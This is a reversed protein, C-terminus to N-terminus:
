LTVPEDDRRRRRFVSPTLLALSALWGKGLPQEAPTGDEDPLAASEEAWIAADWTTMVEDSTEVDVDTTDNDVMAQESPRLISVSASNFTVLSRLKRATNALLKVPVARVLKESSRGSSEAISTLVVDEIPQEQDADSSVITIREPASWTGIQGTTGIARVWYRYDGATLETTSTYDTGTITDDRIIATSVSSVSSVFIEYRVANSAATWSFLPTPDSGAAIPDLVPATVGNISFQSQSNLSWLSVRGDVAFARVWIRYVGASLADAVQYFNTTLGAVDVIPSGISASPALYVQYSVAGLVPTWTLLPTDDHTNGIPIVSTRGGIEIVEGKSWTTVVTGAEVNSGTFVGRTWVKYRGNLLGSLDYQTSSLDNEVLIVEAPVVDVKNLWLQWTVSVDQAAADPHHWNVTVDSDFRPSITDVAPATLIDFDYPVSWDSVEGSGAEAQVWYRYKGVPLDAPPTYSGSQLDAQVFQTEGMSVSTLWIRYKLGALSPQWTLTPRQSETRSFPAAGLGEAPGLLAPATGIQFDQVASWDSATGDTAFSRIRVQYQGPTLAIGGPVTLSTGVVGTQTFVSVDTSVNVVEVESTAGGFVATWSFKPTTDYTDANPSLVEPPTSVTFGSSESFVAVTSGSSSAAPVNNTQIRVDYRGLPLQDVNSLTFQTASIGNRQLIVQDSVANAIEVDYTDAGSM